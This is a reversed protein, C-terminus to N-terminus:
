FRNKMYLGGSISSVFGRKQLMSLAISSEEVSISSSLAIEALTYLEGEEMISYITDVPQSTNFHPQPPPTPIASKDIHKELRIVVDNAEQYLNAGAYKILANTGTGSSDGSRSPLAFLKRGYGKAMLATRTSGGESPSEVVITAESVGAILRNRSLFAGRTVVTGAPMDSLIAGGSQIIRQALSRHPAPTISMVWGPLFAATPVGSNLAALHAAKDIGYALGSVIALKPLKESLEQIITLTNEIGEQTAKRTGIVSICQCNNLVLSGYQYLVHPADKCKALLKPYDGSVGRVLIKVGDKQCQLIIKKASELAKPNHIERVVAKGFGKDILTEASQCFVNQATAFEAILKRATVNGVKAVRTLAVDMLYREM